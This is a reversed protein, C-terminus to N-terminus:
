NAACQAKSCTPAPLPKCCNFDHCDTHMNGENDIGDACTIANGDCTSVNVNHCSSDACDTFGDGDNDMGDSCEAPSSELTPCLGLYICSIDGGMTGAACDVYENYHADSPDSNNDIGDMCKAVTDERCIAVSDQCSFDACDIFGDGGNPENDIGDTCEVDGAEVGDNADNWCTGTQGATNNAEAAKLCNRDDCDSFGNNDNDNNDSCNAFGGNNLENCVTVNPLNRCGADACDTDGDGDNDMGDSCLADTNEVPEPCDITGKCDNDACDIFTDNDDDLGNTCDAEMGPNTGGSSTTSGGSGGNASSTGTSTTPSTTNTTSKKKNGNDSQCAAFILAASSFALISQRLLSQKLISNM